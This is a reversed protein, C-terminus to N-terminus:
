LYNSLKKVFLEKETYLDSDIWMHRPDASRIWTAVQYYTGFYVLTGSTMRKPFWTFLKIPKHKSTLLNYRSNPKM